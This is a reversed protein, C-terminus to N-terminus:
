KDLSRPLRPRKKFPLELDLPSKEDFRNLERLDVATSSM